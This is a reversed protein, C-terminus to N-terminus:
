VGTAKAIAARAKEIAAARVKVMDQGCSDQGSVRTCGDAILQLAALLEQNVLELRACLANLKFVGEELARNEERLRHLELTTEAVHDRMTHFQDSTTKM